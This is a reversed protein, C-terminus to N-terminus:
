DSKRGGPPCRRDGARASRPSGSRRGASNAQAPSPSLTKLLKRARARVAASPDDLAQEVIPQVRRRLSDDKAALNVLGSLSFARLFGSDSALAEFLLEIALAKDRGRLPLGGLAITLNWRTQLDECEGAVRLLEHAYPVLLNPEARGIKKLANAARTTVVRRKDHLAAILAPLTDSFQM